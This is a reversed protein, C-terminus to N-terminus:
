HKYLWDFFLLVLLTVVLAPVAIYLLTVIFSGSHAYTSSIFEAVRVLSVGVVLLGAFFPFRNPEVYSGKTLMVLVFLGAVAVLAYHMYSLLGDNLLSNTILSHWGLFPVPLNALIWVLPLAYNRLTKM